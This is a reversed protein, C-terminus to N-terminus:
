RSMTSPNGNMPADDIPVEHGLAVRERGRGRARGRDRGRGHSRQSPEEVPADVPSSLHVSNFRINVM